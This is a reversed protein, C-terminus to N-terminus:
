ALLSQLKFRLNFAAHAYLDSFRLTRGGGALELSYLNWTPDNLNLPLEMAGLVQDKLSNVLTFGDEQTYIHMVITRDDGESTKTGPDPNDIPEGIVIYPYPQSPKASGNFVPVPNNSLDLITGNLHSFIATRLVAEATRKKIYPKFVM